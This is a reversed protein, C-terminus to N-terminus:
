SVLRLRRRAEAGFLTGAPWRDNLVPSSKLIAQRAEMRRGMKWLCEGRINEVWALRWLEDPYDAKSVKAAEDLLPASTSARGTACRVEGLDALSPGLTRHRSTRAAHIAREFLRESEATRGTNRRVIALNSFVFSMLSHTDGWEKLGVAMAKELLPEAEKFRREEILVRALNNRTTATDPHDTGLVKEDSKLNGNFYAAASRLDGRFYAISGLTNFNDSVSPSAGGEIQQRLRLAPVIRREALELRDAYMANTGLAELDRAVDKLGEQGRARDIRLAEALVRESESYRELESLAQGLGVLARSRVAGGVGEKVALASRFAKEAGAYDGLRLRSEGLAATQRAKTAPDDHSIALSRRVLGDSQRYLGLAGYVESLTVALEAKVTPQDNLSSNLRNSARDVIERATITAGQANSPDAVEFMGKVFDLTRQATLTRQDAVQRQRVAEARSFFAFITLGMMVLCGIASATAIAFMRRHRRAAERQRLEDYPVGLIGALVKLRAGSKGDAAKRVDAALAEPGDERLAPPLCEQSPDAAHPQGDVIILRISLRRGLRIFERIEEDVWKSRASNPSCIVVLAASEALAERVSAALDPSTALEDRDRFVPPLKPGLEGWPAERGWLHRPVRYNELGRHLWVAWDRDAHNYSIFASYRM